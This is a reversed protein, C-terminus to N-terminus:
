IYHYKFNEELYTRMINRAEELSKIEEAIIKKTGNYFNRLIVKYM